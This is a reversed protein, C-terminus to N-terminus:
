SRRRNLTNLAADTTQTLGKVLESLSPNAPQHAQNRAAEQAEWRREANTKMLPRYPRLFKELHVLRNLLQDIMVIRPHPSTYNRSQELNTVLHVLEEMIQQRVYDLLDTPDDFHPVPKQQSESPPSQQLSQQLWAEKRWAYLTREPIGTEQSARQMDGGVAQLAELAATKEAPTYKRTPMPKVEM